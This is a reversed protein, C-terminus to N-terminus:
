GGGILDEGPRPCPCVVLCILHPRSVLGPGPTPGHCPRVRPGSARTHLGRSPYLTPDIPRQRRPGTVFPGPTRALYCDTPSLIHNSGLCWDLGVRHSTPYLLQIILSPTGRRDSVPRCGGCVRGGGVM